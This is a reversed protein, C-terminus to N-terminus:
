GKEVFEASCYGEYVKGATTVFTVKYWTENKDNTVTELITVHSGGPIQVLISGDTGPASRLNLNCQARPYTTDQEPESSESPESVTSAESVESVESTESTDASYEPESVPESQETSVESIEMASAETSAEESQESVTPESIVPESEDAPEAPDKGFWWLLFVIAVVAVFAAAIWLVRQTSKSVGEDEEGWDDNGFTAEFPDSDETHVMESVRETLTDPLVCVKGCTKLLRPFFPLLEKGIGESSAEFADYLEMRGGVIHAKVADEDCSLLRAAEETPFGAYDHVLLAFRRSDSMKDLTEDALELDCKRVSPEKDPRPLEELDDFRDENGDAPGMNVSEGRTSALKIKGLYFANECLWRYFNGGEPLSRLNKKAYTFTNVAVEEASGDDGTLRRCFYFLRKDYTSFLSELADADGNQARSLLDDTQKQEAM